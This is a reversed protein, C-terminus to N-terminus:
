TSCTPSNHYGQHLMQLLCEAKTMVCPRGDNRLSPTNRVCLDFHDCQGDSLCLFRDTASCTAIIGLGEQFEPVMTVQLEPDLCAALGLLALIPSGWANLRSVATLTLLGQVAGGSNYRALCQQWQERALGKFLGIIQEM